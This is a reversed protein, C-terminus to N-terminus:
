ESTEGETEAEADDQMGAILIESCSLADSIQELTVKPRYFNIVASFASIIELVPNNTDIIVPFVISRMTTKNDM